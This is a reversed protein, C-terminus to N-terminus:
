NMCFTAHAIPEKNEPMEECYYYLTSQPSKITQKLAIGLADNMQREKGPELVTIQVKSMTGAAHNEPSVVQLRLAQM